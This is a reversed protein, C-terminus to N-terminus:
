NDTTLQEHDTRGKVIRPPRGPSPWQKAEAPTRRDASQRRPRPPLTHPPEARTPSHHPELSQSQAFRDIVDILDDLNLPLELCAIAGKERALAVTNRDPFGMLAVVPGLQRAHRELRETWEELVPVDWVTLLPEGPSAPANSSSTGTGVFQDDTQEAPYGAASCALAVTRCLESNASAVMIRSRLDDETRPSRTPRGELLRAVHRPLVESATAESLVLDVLGSYRELEEYRVFPGVCLILAPSHVTGIQTRWEKFRDADGAALRQRHVVILRPPQHADFPQKLSEGPCDMRVVGHPAPLADAIAVVWPDNLDGFFWIAGDTEDM